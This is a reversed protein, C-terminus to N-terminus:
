KASYRYLKAKTPKKTMPIIDLITRVGTINKIKMGVFVVHKGLPFYDMWRVGDVPHLNKILETEVHKARALIYAELNSEESKSGLGEEYGVNHM